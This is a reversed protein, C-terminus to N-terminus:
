ALKKYIFMMYLQWDGVSQDNSADLLHQNGAIRLTLQGYKNTAQKSSYSHVADAFPIRPTISILALDFGLPLDESDSMNLDAQLNIQNLKIPVNLDGTIPTIFSYAVVREPASDLVINHPTGFMDAALNLKSIDAIRTAIAKLLIARGSTEDEIQETSAWVDYDTYNSIYLTNWVDNKTVGCTHREFTGDASYDFLPIVVADADATATCAARVGAFDAKLADLIKKQIEATSQADKLVFRRTEVYDFGTEECPKESCVFVINFENNVVGSIKIESNDVNLNVALAVKEWDFRGAGFPTSTCFPVIPTQRAIQKGDVSISITDLADHYNFVRGNKNEFFVSRISKVGIPTVTIIEDTSSPISFFM